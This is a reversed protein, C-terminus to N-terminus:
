KSEGTPAPLTPSDMWPSPLNPRTFPKVSAPTSNTTLFRAGFLRNWILCTRMVPDWCRRILCATFPLLRLFLNNIKASRWAAAPVLLRDPPPHRDEVVAAAPVIATALHLLLRPLLFAAATPTVAPFASGSPVIRCIFSAPLSLLHRLRPASPFM